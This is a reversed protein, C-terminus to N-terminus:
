RRCVLERVISLFIKILYIVRSKRVLMIRFPLAATEKEGVNNKWAHVGSLEIMLDINVIHFFTMCDGVQSLEEGFSFYANGLGLHVPPSKRASGETSLQSLILLFGPCDMHRKEEKTSTLSSPSSISVQPVPLYVMHSKLPQCHLFVALTQPPAAQPPAILFSAPPTSM